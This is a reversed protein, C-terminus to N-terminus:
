RQLVVMINGWFSRYDEPLSFGLYDELTDIDEETVTGFPKYENRKGENM